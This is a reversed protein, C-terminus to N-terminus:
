PASSPQTRLGRGRRGSGQSPVAERSQKAVHANSTGEGATWNPKGQKSSSTATHHRSNQTLPTPTDAQKRYCRQCICGAPPGRRPKISVAPDCETGKSHPKGRQNVTRELSNDTWFNNEEKHKKKM